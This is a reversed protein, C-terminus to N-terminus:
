KKDKIVWGGGFVSQHFGVIETEKNDVMASLKGDEGIFFGVGGVNTMKGNNM